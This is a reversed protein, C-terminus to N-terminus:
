LASNVLLEILPLATTYKIQNMKYSLIVPEVPTNKIFCKYLSYHEACGFCDRQILKGSM